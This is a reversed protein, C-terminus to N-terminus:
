PGAHRERGAKETIQVLQSLDGVGGAELPKSPGCGSLEFPQQSGGYIVWIGSLRLPHDKREYIWGGV